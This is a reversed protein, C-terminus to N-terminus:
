RRHSRVKLQKKKQVFVFRIITEKNIFVFSVNSRGINFQRRIVQTCYLILHLTFTAVFCIRYSQLLNTCSLEIKFKCKKKQIIKKKEYAQQYWALQVRFLICLPFGPSSNLLLIKWVCTVNTTFRSTAIRRSDNKTCLFLVLFHLHPSPTPLNTLHM